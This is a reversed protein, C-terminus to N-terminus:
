SDGRLVAVPDAAAARRAPFCSAVLVIGLLVGAGALFAGPDAPEVEFLLSRLSRTVAWAAALGAAAGLVGLILSRWAVARFIQAPSAGLASRVALERRRQHVDYSMVGYVGAASLVIAMLAFLATVTLATRPRALERALLADMSDISHLAAHPEQARITERVAPILLSPVSATRVVLADPSFYFFQAAPFYVTMWSRTLERYRLEGAVGVVTVWGFEAALRLQKGVPDQGPWYRRAVSESVIAVPRADRNDADTFSRGRVIPVGLTRFYSPTVPDFSAWPNKEADHPTQGEFRMPASLGAMGTGPGMQLPSASIVGPLSTLKPLLEDYFALRTRADAYRSEPLLIPIVTLNSSDFGRDIRQLHVFSRVLLGAGIAVVVAAAIEAIVFVRLGRTGPVERLSLRLTGTGASPELRRHGWVPVTGLALVWVLVAVACFGLVRLDLSADEIHPVDGPALWKVIGLFLAAVLLGCLASLGGLVLGETVTQRALRAHSAGLAVRVALEKRRDSARMLLLAAVNVGAIVFVLGAAAFLFLLVRRGNGVMTDLLSQAVIPMPRYDNPFQAGWQRSIVDLEARARDLSADPALRGLVEFQIFGPSNFDFRGDRGDFFRAIPVWMETGLPYDIDAPAVGVVVLTRDSGAWTLRRGVFAPDGGTTRRWFRESVVAVVDAGPQEDGAQLWRGYLPAGGHLVAFFDASVPTLAVPSPRGDITLANTWTDAYNIAALKEFGRARDRWETFERYSVQYRDLGREVDDKWIRVVRDQDVAIPRLLVADIVAFLATIAGVGLGLTLVTVGAFQRSRRLSRAVYRLDHLLADLM